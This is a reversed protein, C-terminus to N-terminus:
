RATRSEIVSDCSHKSTVRVYDLARDMVEVSFHGTEDVHHSVVADHNKEVLGLEDREFEAIENAIQALQTPDFFHGQLIANLAHQACM